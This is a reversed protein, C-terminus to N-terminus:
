SCHVQRALARAQPDAGRDRLVGAGGPPPLVPLAARHAHDAHRCGCCLAPTPVDPHTPPPRSDYMGSYGTPRHISSVNCCPFGCAASHQPGQPTVSAVARDSASMSGPGQIKFDCNNEAAFSTRNNCYHCCPVGFEGAVSPAVMPGGASMSYATSGSPTSIILGDAQWRAAWVPTPTVVDHFHGQRLCTLQQASRACCAAGARPQVCSVPCGPHRCSPSASWNGPSRPALACM